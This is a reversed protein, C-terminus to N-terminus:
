TAAYQSRVVPALRLHSAANSLVQVTPHLFVTFEYSARRTYSLQYLGLNHSQNDRTRAGDSAGIRLVDHVNNMANKRKSRLLPNPRVQLEGEFPMSENTAHDGKNEMGVQWVHQMM